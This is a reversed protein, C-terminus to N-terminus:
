AVSIYCEASEAIVENEIYGLNEIEVQVKDGVKLWTPPQMGLGVGSPTGTFLVDGPDLPFVQTLHAIQQFCNFLMNGTNSNQRIEGNVRTRISLDHPDSIEDATTLWPGIPAHSDFSKGMQLTPVRLQWDRVSVDNGVCYGAIVEHARGLPVHKCHKGIIVCLEGEYDLQDSVSPLMIGKYPGNASNWQKNFWMQHEPKKLDIEAIHDAYNLGIALIKGPDPVVADLEVESVALAHEIDTQVSRAMDMAADGAELFTKMDVPLEPAARSLDIILEGAVLGIRTLGQHTFTALKMDFYRSRVSIPKLGKRFHCLRTDGQSDRRSGVKAPLSFGSVTM